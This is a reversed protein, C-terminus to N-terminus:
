ENTRNPNYLFGAEAKERETMGGKVSKCLVVRTRTM